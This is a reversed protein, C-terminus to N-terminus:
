QSLAPTSRPGPPLHDNLYRTLLQYLHRRTNNGEKISHTRNPYTMMTFHKNHRILENVLAECNQYHCNDDGTGYVLLLNGELQHAYTIPSGQRFGEENDDPLGMYREQYITDYYRQNSIFAIAMATHYLEPYRFIANLSMSGGGSWGWIGVRDPDIYPHTKIIARAAAAQDASALIGIQRYVCKRWQRGRPAPTGRNDVSMVVYGQQALMRHWLYKEGGWKDLVSQGAPEGYVYFFLPYKKTPDMDPPKICWADLLVGDGIDVRFFETPSPKLKELKEQLEFNDALTRKTEHDPLSVLEIKPPIGFSSYTHIAWQADPSINYTHTGKQELPTIRKRDGAGDLPVRYLYRHTPNDPSGIFYVWGNEEDVGQIRLADYKGPTLLTTKEGSRSVKYIRRWGDRESLWLFERDNKLWKMDERMDVWADDQDTFITHVRRRGLTHSLITIKNQLRNLRQLILAQSDETWNIKPVYSNRTDKSTNIWQTKGGASPIIGVRCASNTQGVKPYAFTTIKPYLSDTYNILHFEKVGTTDFQWYAIHKGDPSWRFGDRLSFEEEYVWDSAGNILTDSGDHTLRTIKLDALNQVYLNNKYVYAVRTGDPSFKAFMLRSPEADGGLKQLKGKHRNLLWYDGRTNKRWVRKTNTFILLKGGDKSWSYNDIKLANPEGDPILKVCPILVDSQNAAPNYRVIDKGEEFEDNEELTTYGSGDEMWQLPGFTETKLENPDFIREITLISPDPKEEALVAITSALLCTAMFGFIWFANYLSRIM